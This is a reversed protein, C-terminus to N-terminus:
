LHLDQGSWRAAPNFGAKGRLFADTTDESYYRTVTQLSTSAGSYDNRTATVIGNTTSYTTTSKATVVDNISTQVLTPRNMYGFPDPGYEFYTVEGPASGFPRYRYRIKGMRYSTPASVDYYQYSEWGGGPLTVSGVYGFSGPQTWVTNYDITTAIGASGVTETRLVEGISQTADYTRTARLANSGNPENVTITETRNQATGGSQVTTRVLVVEGERTWDSKTWTFNPWTGTRQLSMLERRTVPVNTINADTINRTEKTFLLSSATSGQDIRYTVFPSGSFTCPASSTIQGPTYCRLEYSTATLTVVDVAVQNSIIQRIQDNVRYVYVEDSIAEYYLAAPTYLTTWDGTGTDILELAGASDGNRLSGLSLSWNVTSSGVSSAYGAAAVPGDSRPQICFTVTSMLPCCNRRSGNMVVQYGPPAVVAITGSVLNTGSGHVTYSKGPEVKVAGTSGLVASISQSANVAYAAVSSVGDNATPSSALFSGSLSLAGYFATTQYATGSVNYSYAGNVEGTYIYTWVVGGVTVTKYYGYFESYYATYSYVTTMQGYCQSGAQAQAWVRVPIGSAPGSQAPLRSICVVSLMVALGVIRILPYVCPKMPRIM